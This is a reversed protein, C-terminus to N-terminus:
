PKSLSKGARKPEILAKLLPERWAKAERDYVGFGAAFEWYAWSFGRAGASQRVFRTWRARSDMDAKGYSGFEGLYIPRHHKKSWEAATDFDREVAQKEAGSGTWRTGLWRNTDPNWEAGQHTFEFPSYYHVTAILHRDDPLELNKLESISNWQTPGIIVIRRPNTKRVV